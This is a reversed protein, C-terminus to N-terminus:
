VTGQTSPTRRVTAQSSAWPLISFKSSSGKSSRTMAAQSCRAAASSVSNDSRFYGVGGSGGTLNGLKDPAQRVRSLLRIRHVQLAFPGALPEFRQLAGGQGACAFAGDRDLVAQATFVHAHGGGGIELEGDATHQAVVGDREFARRAADHVREGKGHVGVGVHVVFAALEAVQELHEEVGHEGLGLAAGDAVATAEVAVKDGPQAVVHVSHLAHLVKRVAELVAYVEVAVALTGVAHDPVVDLPAGRGGGAGVMPRHAKVVIAEDLWKVVPILVDRAGLELADRDLIVDLVEEDLAEVIGPLCGTVIAPHRVREVGGHPRQFVADGAGVAPRGPVPEELAAVGYVGPIKLVRLVAQALKHAPGVGHRDVFLLGAKTM